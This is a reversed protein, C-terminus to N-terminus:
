SMGFDEGRNLFALQRDIERSLQKDASRERYAAAARNHLQVLTYRVIREHSPFNTGDLIISQIVLMQHMLNQLVEEDERNYRFSRVPWQGWLSM